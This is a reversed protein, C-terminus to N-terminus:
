KTMFYAAGVAAAGVLWPAVGSGQAADAPAGQDATDYYQTGSPPASTSSDEPMMADNSSPPSVSSGDANTWDSSSYPDGGGNSRLIPPMTSGSNEDSRQPLQHMLDYYQQASILNGNVDSYQTGVPYGNIDLGGSNSVAPTVTMTQRKPTLVAFPANFLATVKQNLSPALSQTSKLATNIPSMNAATFTRLVDKPSGGTIATKAALVPAAMVKLPTVVVKMPAAVAKTVSQVAKTVSKFGFGLGIDPYTGRLENGMVSCNGIPFLTGTGTMGSVPKPISEAVRAAGQAMNKFLYLGIGIGAITVITSTKM